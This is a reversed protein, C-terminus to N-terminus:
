ILNFLVIFFKTIILNKITNSNYPSSKIISRGGNQTIAILNEM